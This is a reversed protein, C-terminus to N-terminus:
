EEATHYSENAVELNTISKEFARLAEPFSTSAFEEWKNKFITASEGSWVSNDGVRTDIQNNLANFLSNLYDKDEKIKKAQADVVEYSYAM